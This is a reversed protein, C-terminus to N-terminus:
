IEIKYLHLVKQTTWKSNITNIEVFIVNMMLVVTPYKLGAFGLSKETTGQPRSHIGYFVPLFPKSIIHKLIYHMLKHYIKYAGLSYTNM